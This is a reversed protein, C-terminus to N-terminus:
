KKIAALSMIGMVCAIAFTFMENIPDAFVIGTKGFMILGAVIFFVIACGVFRFDIKKLM